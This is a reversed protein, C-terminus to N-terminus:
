TEYKNELKQNVKNFSASGNNSFLSSTGKNLVCCVVLKTNQKFSKTENVSPLMDEKIDGACDEVNSRVIPSILSAM